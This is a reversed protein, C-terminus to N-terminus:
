KNDIEFSGVAKIAKGTDDIQNVELKYSSQKDLASLNFVIEFEGTTPDWTEMLFQDNSEIGNKYITTAYREDYLREIESYYDEFQAGKAVFTVTTQLADSSAIINTINNSNSIKPIATQTLLETNVEFCWDGSYKLAPDVTFYKSEPDAQAGKKAAELVDRDQWELSNIVLTLKADKPIKNTTFTSIVSGYFMNGEKRFTSKVGESDNLEEQNGNSFLQFRIFQRNNGSKIEKELLETLKDDKIEFQYDFAYKKETAVFKTLTIELDNKTSSLQTKTSIGENEVTEIGQDQSIGLLSKIATNVQPNFSVLAIISAIVSAFIIIEKTLNKKQHIKGDLINQRNKELKALVESPIKMEKKILDIDKKSM